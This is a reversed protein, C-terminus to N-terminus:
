KSGFKIEGCFLDGVAYQRKLDISVSKENDYNSQYNDNAHDINASQFNNLAFPIWREIPGKPYDKAGNNMGSIVTNTSDKISPEILNLEYDFPDERKAESFSLNWNVMFGALVNEGHLFANVTSIETERERYDYIVQGTQPYTRYSTLYNRSTQNFMTNALINGGDPADFDLIVAAGTRKRIENTYLPRFSTIEYDDGNKLRLDYNLDTSENSRIFREINGSVQIGLVDDLFREGYRGSITYQDASRDLGNYNGHPELRILRKAPAKKTVLNVSGAIADADRDATAAKTLEIGALSGQSITSLDVGRDNADTPAMRNGDITIVSFKDSLGRLIVKSAEGGSRILSVGPLRGIADAANADPMEKIRDESVVNVITNSSIQQNIAALQGRMQATIIVEDGVIVSPNLRVHLQVSKEEAFSLSIRRQDYGVCSIRILFNGDPINNILYRGEIDTSSGLATGELFVNIGVLTEGTTSDSVTGSLSHQAYGPAALILVFFLVAFAKM